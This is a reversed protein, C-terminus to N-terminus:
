EGGRRRGVDRHGLVRVQRRRRADTEPRERAARLPDGRPEAPRRVQTVVGTFTVVKTQDYMAFSHHSLAPTRGCRRPVPRRRSGGVALKTMVARRQDRTEDISAVRPGIHRSADAPAKGLGGGAADWNQSWPRGYYDIYDADGTTLQTPRGNVSKINSLCEIFTYRQMPMTSDPPATGASRTACRRSSHKPITSRRRSRSDPSRERHHRQSAHLSRRDGPLRQVRVDLAVADLGPCERDLRDPRRGELIRRDRRVVAPGAPRPETRDLVRRLFNDAIGALFQVQHPTTMIEIQGIAFQAWWRMFGEPYCYAANWQPANNVAEHYNMQVMRQQYEPTLLSLITSAQNIRGYIWQTDTDQASRNYRGDWDPLTQRTHVTPGGATAAEAMLAEYHEKATKHPLRSKINEVPYDANCDGWAASRPPDSGIRGQTWIDTLQRPTNCRFYRPDKWLPKTWTTTRRRSCTSLCRSRPKRRSARRRRSRRRTGGAPPARRRIGGHRGNWAVQGDHGHGSRSTLQFAEM